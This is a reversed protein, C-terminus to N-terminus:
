RARPKSSKFYGLELSPDNNPDYSYEDTYLIYGRDSVWRHHWENTDTEVKGSYPNVYEDQGSIFLYYEKNIESQVRRKNELIESYTDQIYRQTDLARMSRERVGMESAVAWQMNVRVSSEIMNFIPEWTEFEEAPARLIKTDKNEWLSSTYMTYYITATIVRERYKVGNEEFTFDMIIGDYNYMMYQANQRTMDQWKKILASPVKKEIINMNGAGPHIQPLIINYIFEEARMSPLVVMGNCTSGPPFGPSRLDYYRGAPLYHLMVKRSPDKMIAMNLLPEQVAQAIGAGPALPNPRFIGGEVYWDHPILMTFAQENQETYPKFILTKKVPGEKKEYTQSRKVGSQDPSYEEKGTGAKRSDTGGNKGSGAIEEPLPAGCNVCFKVILKLESGCYPCFKFM